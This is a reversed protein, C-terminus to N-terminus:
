PHHHVSVWCVVRNLFALCLLEARLRRVLLLVM